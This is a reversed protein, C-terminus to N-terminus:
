RDGNTEITYLLTANAGATGNNVQLYRNPGSMSAEVHIDKTHQQGMFDTYSVTVVGKKEETASVEGDSTVTFDSSSYSVEHTLVETHGDAFQGTVAISKSAGVRLTIDDANIFSRFAKPWPM